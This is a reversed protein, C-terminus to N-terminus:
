YYLALSSYIIQDAPFSTEGIIQKATFDFEPM